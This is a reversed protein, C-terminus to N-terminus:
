MVMNQTADTLFSDERLSDERLNDKNIYAELLSNYRRKVLQIFSLAKKKKNRSTWEQTYAVGSALYDAARDFTSFTNLKKM